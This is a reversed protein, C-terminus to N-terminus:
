SNHHSISYAVQPHDTYLPSRGFSSWSLANKLRLLCRGCVPLVCIFCFTCVHASVLLTCVAVLVHPCVPVWPGVWPGSRWYWRLDPFGLVTVFDLGLVTVFCFGIHVNNFLWTTSRHFCHFDRPFDVNKFFACRGSFIWSFVWFGRNRFSFFQFRFPDSARSPSNPVRKFASFASESLSTTM